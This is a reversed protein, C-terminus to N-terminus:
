LKRLELDFEEQAIASLVNVEEYGIKNFENLIDKMRKIVKHTDINIDHTDRIAMLTVAFTIRFAKNSVRRLERKNPKRKKNSLSLCRIHRCIM